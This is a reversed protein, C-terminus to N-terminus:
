VAREVTKKTTLREGRANKKRKKEKGTGKGRGAAFVQKNRLTKTTTKPLHQHGGPQILHSVHAVRM